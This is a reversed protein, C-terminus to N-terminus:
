THMSRSGADCQQDSYIIHIRSWENPSLRTLNVLYVVAFIIFKCEDRVINCNGIHTRQPTNASLCANINERNLNLSHELFRRLRCGKPTGWEIQQAILIRLSTKASNAIWMWKEKHFYYVNFSVRHSHFFFFNFVFIYAFVMQNRGHADWDIRM